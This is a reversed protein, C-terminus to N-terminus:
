GLFIMNIGIKPPPPAPHAGGGGGGVGPDAGTYICVICVQLSESGSLLVM